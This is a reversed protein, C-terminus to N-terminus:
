FFPLGIFTPIAVFIARRLLFMPMYMVNMHNKYLHLGEYLNGMQRQINDHSLFIRMKRLLWIIAVPFLIIILVLSLGILM